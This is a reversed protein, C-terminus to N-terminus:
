KKKESLKALYKEPDAKFKPVCKDCCFRVETGEHMLVVPEGMSGLEEGSVVCVELPYDGTAATSKEATNETKTSDAENKPQCSVLGFLLGLTLITKTKM